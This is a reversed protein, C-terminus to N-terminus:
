RKEGERERREGQGTEQTPIFLSKEVEQSSHVGQRSGLAKEMLLLMLRDPLM